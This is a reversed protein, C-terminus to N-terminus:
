PFAVWPVACGGAFNVLVTYDSPAESIKGNAFEFTLKGNKGARLQRDRDPGSLTLLDGSTAVAQDYIEKGDLKVAVLDGNADAPWFVRLDTMTQTSEGENNLRWEAKKNKPRLADGFVACRNPSCAPGDKGGCPTFNVTFAGLAADGAYEGQGKLKKYDDTGDLISFSGSVGLASGPGSFRLNVQGEATSIVMTGSNAGALLSPDGVAVEDMVFTGELQGSVAGINTIKAKVYGNDGISITEFGTPYGSISFPGLPPRDASVVGAVALLAVLVLLLTIIRKM